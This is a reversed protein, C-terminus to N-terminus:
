FAGTWREVLTCDSLIEYILSLVSVYHTTCPKHKQYEHLARAQQVSSRLVGREIENEFLGSQMFVKNESPEM